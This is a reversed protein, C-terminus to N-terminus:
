GCLPCTIKTDGARGDLCKACFSHYCSLLRPDEFVNNCILCFLPNRSCTDINEIDGGAGPLASTASVVGSGCTSRGAGGGASNSVHGGEGGSASTWHKSGHQLKHHHHYQHSSPPAPPIFSMIDNQQQQKQQQQQHKSHGPTAPERSRPTQRDSRGAIVSYQQQQHATSTSARAPPPPYTKAAAAVSISPIGGGGTGAGRWSKSSSPTTSGVNKSM